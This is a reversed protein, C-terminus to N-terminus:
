SQQRPLQRRFTLALLGLGGLLSLTSPEPVATFSLAGDGFLTFYGVDQQHGASDTWWLEANQSQGTTFGAPTTSNPNYYISAFNNRITGPAIAENWSDGAPAPNQVTGYAVGTPDVIAQNASAGGGVNYLSGGVTNIASISQGFTGPTSPRSASTSYLSGNGLLSGGVVGWQIGGLGGDTSVRGPIFQPGLAAGVNLSLNVPIGIPGGVGVQSATGLDVILDGTSSGSTFGLILENRNGTYTSVLQAQASVALASAAIATLTIRTKQKM